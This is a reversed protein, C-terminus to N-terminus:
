AVRTQEAGIMKTAENRSFITMQQLHVIGLAAICSHVVHM